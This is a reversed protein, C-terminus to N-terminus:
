VKWLTQLKEKLDKIVIDREPVASVVASLWTQWDKRIIGILQESFLSDVSDFVINKLECKKTVLGPILRTDLHNEYDQLIRWLDYYDRVRSRGWGREHVKKAFQLIARIKEAIIEELPYVYISEGFSEGYDDLIPRLLPKMLIMERMTVEVMVRTYWTRHWPLRVQITFAEQQEPHPEKEEYRKCQFAANEGRSQLTDTAYECVQHLLYLLEEGSPHEEQVSFDLDQSFRYDGFYCKKLSTGGKFILTNKLRQTHAIASLIWSLAYDKELSDWAAGTRVQSEEFRARLSPLIM